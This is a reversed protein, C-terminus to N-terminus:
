ASEGLPAIADHLETQGSLTGIIVIGKMPGIDQGLLYRGSISLGSQAGASAFRVIHLSNTIEHFLSAFEGQNQRYSALNWEFSFTNGDCWIEVHSPCNVQAQSQIKRVAHLFTVVSPTNNIRLTKCIKALERAQNKLACEVTYRASSWGTQTWRPGLLQEHLLLQLISSTHPSSVPNGHCRWINRDQGSTFDVEQESFM